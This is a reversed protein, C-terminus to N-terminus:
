RSVVDIRVCPTIPLCPDGVPRVCSMLGAMTAAAARVPSTVSMRSILHQCLHVISACLYTLDPAPGNRKGSRIDICVADYWRTIELGDSEVPQSLGGEVILTKLRVSCGLFVREVVTTELIGTDQDYPPVESAARGPFVSGLGKQPPPDLSDM